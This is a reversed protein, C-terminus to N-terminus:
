ASKHFSSNRLVTEYVKSIQNLVTEAGYTARVRKAFECGLAARKEPSKLLAVIADSLAVPSGPPVLIGARGSDLVEACQGVNTSVSPLEALGYEILALPLGESISSLVGIDCGRLIAAIDNRPGLWSINATLRLLSISQKIKELAGHDDASGALVLHADPFSRVVMKMAHFLNLHDKQPRLNAVCIIRSGKKGPLDPVSAVSKPESVFNPIYWVRENSIELENRAWDALTQNVSIVGGAKKAAAKYRRVSRQETGCRGFHDHWIVAPKPQFRSVLSAIFLSTGHAHLIQIKHERIYKRLRWIAGLDYRGTRDLNFRTVNIGVLNELPGGNRTVCLHSHFQAPSLSNALNVAVRELGGIALSDTIQMVGIRNM